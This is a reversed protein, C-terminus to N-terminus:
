VLCTFFLLGVLDNAISTSVMKPSKDEPSVEKRKSEEASGDRNASNEGFGSPAQGLNGMWLGLGRSPQAGFPCIEVLSYASPNM